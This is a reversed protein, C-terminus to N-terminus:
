GIRWGQWGALGGARWGTPPYQCRIHRDPCASTGTRCVDCVTRGLKGALATCLPFSVAPDCTTLSVSAVAREDHVRPRKWSGAVYKPSLLNTCHQMCCPMMTRPLM